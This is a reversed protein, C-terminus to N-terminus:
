GKPPSITLRNTVRAVGPVARAVKEAMLKASADRVSGRLTVAGNIAEVRLRAAFVDPNALIGKVVAAELELDTQAHVRPPPEVQARDELAVATVSLLMAWALLAKM